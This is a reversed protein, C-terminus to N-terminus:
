FFRVPINKSSYGLGISATYILRNYPSFSSSQYKTAYFSAVFSVHSFLEHSMAVSGSLGGYGGQINGLSLARSYFLGANLSWKRLGSYGYGASATQMRSTLFLGNGPTISEGAALYAVGRHFSRSLRIGLDPAWFLNNNIALTSPLNCNQVIGSPCLIALFAPNIPVVQEFSSSVRSAGAFLSLETWRTFRDSFSVTGSYINSSGAGGSFGFQDYTFTGGVTIQRSLRYQGDATAVEGHASYLDASRRLDTFYGGGFTFSLRTSAQYTVDALTSSYITRNDYFDTTPLYSQSPDFPVSSNLTVTSPPFQTYMGASERLTFLIHRTFQHTLGISLGQSLGAFYTASPYDYFNGYYDVGLTTHRWRHSGSIGLTAGYGFVGNTSQLQGQTNTAVGLLGTTYNGMLSLSFVFDVTPATMAAPAEGRSLIAPGAYQAGAPVALGFLVLARLPKM